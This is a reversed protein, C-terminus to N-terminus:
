SKPIKVNNFRLWGNDKSEYGFKPGMDGMEIGPLIQYNELDRTQVLFPQIGVKKGSLILQAYVIAYNSFRSM